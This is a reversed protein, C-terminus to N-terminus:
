LLCESLLSRHLYSRVCIPMCLRVVLITKHQCRPHCGCGCLANHQMTELHYDDQLLWSQHWWRQTANVPVYYMTALKCIHTHTNIDFTCLIHLNCCARLVGVCLVWVVVCVLVCLLLVPHNSPAHPTTPPDHSHLSFHQMSCVLHTPWAFACWANTTCQCVCWANLKWMHQSHVVDGHAGGWM